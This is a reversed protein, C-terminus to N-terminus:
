QAGRAASRTDVMNSGLHLHGLAPNAAHESLVARCLATNRCASIILLLEGGVDDVKGTPMTTEAVALNGLHQSRL